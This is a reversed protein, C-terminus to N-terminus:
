ADEILRDPQALKILDFRESTDNALHDLPMGILCLKHGLQERRVNIQRIGQLEIFRSPMFAQRFNQTFREAAATHLREIDRSRIICDNIAGM